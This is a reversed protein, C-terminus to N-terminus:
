PACSPSRRSVRPGLPAGRFAPELVDLLVAKGSLAAGGAGTSGELKEPGNRRGPPMAAWGTTDAGQTINMMPMKMGIKQIM